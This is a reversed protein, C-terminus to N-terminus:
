YAPLSESSGVRRNKGGKEYLDVRLEQRIVSCIHYHGLITFIAIKVTCTTYCIYKYFFFLLDEHKSIVSRNFDNVSDVLKETINVYYSDYWYFGM